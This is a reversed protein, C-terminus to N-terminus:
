EGILADVFEQSKFVQLDEIDEGVGIYRIPIKLQEAIAFVIGGKATGDLKTVVIGTVNVQALFQKAQQLANQGQSADIVLMVEHPITIGSTQEQKALVRKIKALEQMLHAQTHLRGATDAILIDAQKAKASQYADFIVSASDAGTQQAIVPISNREGWTILQEVAAARFTDGAALMVQHGQNKFRKALKGITTTKGAGNIGVMLLVFPRSTNIITDIDLDQECPKLIAVLKTKLAAKLNDIDSSDKLRIEKTLEDLIKKSLDIGVDALILHALLEEWLEEDITVKGTFLSSMGGFLQKRTKALGSYLKSFFGTKSPSSSPTAQPQAIDKQNLENNLNDKSKDNDKDKNRQFFKLM